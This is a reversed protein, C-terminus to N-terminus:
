NCKHHFVLKLTVSTGCDVDQFPAHSVLGHTVRPRTVTRTNDELWERGGKLVGSYVKGEWKTAVELYNFGYALYTAGVGKNGRTFAGDKFSINPQLFQTFHEQKMGCGNDTVSIASTLMDIKIWITPKYDPGEDKARRDVADLANQILESFLDYYGTYSKLINLIERRKAAIVMEEDANATLPDWDPLPIYPLMLHESM